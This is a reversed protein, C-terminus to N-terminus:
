WGLRVGPRALTVPGRFRARVAEVTAAGDTGMRLHTVVVHGVGTAAALRGVMPGDLHPMGAPVPGTGYSAEALLVDDPRVLPRLDDPDAIDGSYVIGPGDGLSVRYGVSQGAHTVPCARVEFPGARVPGDVPPAELDFAAATFGPQGYLGDIRQDLGIPALV